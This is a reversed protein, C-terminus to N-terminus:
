LASSKRAPAGHLAIRRAIDLEDALEKFSPIKDDREIMTPKAGVRAVLREYLRWVADDIPHDHTDIIYTANNEHGALHVYAIFEAPVADIFSEANFDHNVANVFVNNVDLLLACGTKRAAAIYFDWEAMDSNVFSVYTSANELVIPRGLAVQVQDIRACIHELTERNFPLPLLDHTNLGAVGTWCFHDSVFPPQLIGVLKKLRALYDVDIPDTSGISLSVGHMVIPYRERVRMLNALAPGGDIMFNESIVEFWDVTGGGGGLIDQYHQPRLGLGM